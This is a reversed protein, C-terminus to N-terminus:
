TRHKSKSFLASLSSSMRCFRGAPVETVIYKLSRPGCSPHVITFISKNFLIRVTDFMCDRFVDVSQLNKQCLVYSGKQYVEEEINTDWVDIVVFVGKGRTGMRHDPLNKSFM